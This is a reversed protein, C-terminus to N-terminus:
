EYNTDDLGKLQVDGLIDSKNGVAKKYTADDFTTTAAPAPKSTPTGKKEFPNFVNKKDKAGFVSKKQSDTGSSSPRLSKQEPEEAPPPNARIQPASTYDNEM